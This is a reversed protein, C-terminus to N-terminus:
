EEDGGERAIATGPRDCDSGWRSGISTFEDAPFPLRIAVGIRDRDGESCDVDAPKLARCFDADVGDSERYVGLLRAEHCAGISTEILFVSETDLDTGNVFSRLRTAPDTSRFALRDRQSESTLHLLEGGESEGDQENERELDYLHSGTRDRAFRVEVNPVPDGRDSSVEESSSTSGSCGAISLTGVTIAAQLARRRSWNSM